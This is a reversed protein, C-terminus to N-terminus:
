QQHHWVHFRRYPPAPIGWQELGPLRAMIQRFEVEDTTSALQHLISAVAKPGTVIAVEGSSSWLDIRDRGPARASVFPWRWNIAGEAPAIAVGGEDATMRLALQYDDLVFRSWQERESEQNIRAPPTIRVDLRVLEGHLPSHSLPGGGQRSAITEFAPAEYSLPMVMREIDAWAAIQELVADAEERAGPRTESPWLSLFVSKGLGVARAAAASWTLVHATYWPPDVLACEYSKAPRFDGIDCVVHKGVGQLPQRDVLTVDCGEEQLRRAVSPTGICLIPPRNALLRALRDCTKKDYRWDYDLPHPNPPTDM